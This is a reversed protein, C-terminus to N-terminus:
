RERGGASASEAGVGVGVREKTIVLIEVNTKLESCSCFDNSHKMLSRSEDTNASVWGSTEAHTIQIKGKDGILQNRFGTAQTHPFSPGGYPAGVPRRRGVCRPSPVSIGSPRPLWAPHLLPPLSPLSLSGRTSLYVFEPGIVRPLRAGWPPSIAPFIHFYYQVLWM